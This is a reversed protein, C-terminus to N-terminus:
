FMPIHVQQEGVPLDSVSGPSTESPSPSDNLVAEPDITEISPQDPHTPATTPTAEPSGSTGSSGGSEELLKKTHETLEYKGYATSTLLGEDRLQTVHKSVTSPKKSVATAIESTKRSGALVARLVEVKEPTLGLAAEPPTGVVQWGVGHRELQLDTDEIDRGTIDLRAQTAPRSRSMFLLTDAVGAIGVSGHIQDYLDATDENKNAHHIAMISIDREFALRQLPRLMENAHLYDSKRGPAAPMVEGLTDIVILRPQKVCDLWETLHAVLGDGLKPADTTFDINNAEATEDGFEDSRLRLRWMPDELGLYLANGSKTVRGLFDSGSSVALCLQLALFSKGMKPKAVLLSLGAPLLNDVLYNIEPPDELRLTALSTAWAPRAPATVPEPAKLHDAPM